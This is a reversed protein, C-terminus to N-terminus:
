CDFRHLSGSYFPGELGLSSPDQRAETEDLSQGVIGRLEM